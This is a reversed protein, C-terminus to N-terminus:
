PANLMLNLEDTLTAPKKFGCFKDIARTAQKLIKMANKLKEPNELAKEWLKTSGNPGGLADLSKLLADDKVLVHILRHLIRHLDPGMEALRQM